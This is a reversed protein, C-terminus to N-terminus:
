YMSKMERPDKQLDYFEWEGLDYYHILKYRGDTVGEHRTINHYSNNQYYHYYHRTRWNDPTHGTLIPVLSQGQMDSPSAACAIDLFTQAFDINSVIDENISGPSVVEPWRVMFPTRLSEEHMLRKDYLGHEGLYFGQDSAYVVVTNESLGTDDLYQLVRGINDDLSAVCRLYDKIYRQYKWSLLDKGELKLKRFAENKGNYAAQWDSKQKDTLNDPVTLKMDRDKLSRLITIEQVKMQSGRGSYDDFLTEPEPITVDDYMTLYDPGPDWPRHPAKQQLMLMFPKRPDRKSKLWDVALDTIIETTYGEHKTDIGNKIMDPNYYVGQGPLVESYDFGQPATKLHWKGVLATQYGAKQLLKPFSQQNGDFTDSNTEVGNLHSYKGTQIVARSPACISNTVYCRNFLMGERALRDIHPTENINSGYASIAQFAHDDSFIFLINPQEERESECGQFLFLLCVLIGGTIAYPFIIKFGVWNKPKSVARKSHHLSNM